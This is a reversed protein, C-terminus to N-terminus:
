LEHKIVQLIEQTTTNRVFILLHLNNIDLDAPIHYSSFYYYKGNQEMDALELVHGFPENNITGRLINRHTYNPIIGNLGSQPSVMSDEVVYIVLALDDTLNQDLKDVEVHTFLGNTSPFYNHQIQINVQLPQALAETTLSGMNSPWCSLENNFLRRSVAVRPLGVFNPSNNGFFTGIAIADDNYYEELFGEIVSTEQFLNLGQPGSHIAAEFVRGPNNVSLVQVAADVEVCSYCRHGSFNEILINRETNTNNDFEPWYNAVYHASDGEPYLSWNIESSGSKPVPNKVKECSFVLLSLALFSVITTKM